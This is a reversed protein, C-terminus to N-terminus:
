ERLKELLLRAWAHDPQSSLVRETHVIAERLDGLRWCTYAYTYRLDDDDPTNGVARQLLPRAAAFHGASCEAVGLSKLLDPHEPNGALARRFALAGEAHHGHTHLEVGIAYQEEVTAPRARDLAVLRAPDLPEVATVLGPPEIGEATPRQALHLGSTAGLALGLLALLVRALPGLTRVRVPRPDAAALWGVAIGLMVLSVTFRLDPSVLSLGLMGAVGAAVGVVANRERSAARISGGMARALLGTMVLLLALGPWGLEALIQLPEDHVDNVVHQGVPYHTLLEPSAFRPFEIHYQGPGVGLPHSATMAWTDRWILSHARERGLADLSLAAVVLGVGLGALLLRRRPSGRPALAVVTLAGALAAAAWAGVSGTALLAPLGLGVAGAAAWRWRSADYLALLACTPLTLVLHAGLFVPNGFSGPARQLHDLPLGLVGSLHQALAHGAIPILTATLLLLGGRRAGSSGSLAWATTGIVLPFLALRIIEDRALVPSALPDFAARLCALAPLSAAALVVGAWPLILSGRRALTVLAVAAALGALGRAWVAKARLVSEDPVFAVALLSAALLLLTGWPPLFERTSAHDPAGPPTLTAYPADDGRNVLKRKGAEPDPSAM